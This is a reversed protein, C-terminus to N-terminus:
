DEDLFGGKNDDAVTLNAFMEIHKSDRLILEISNYVTGSPNQGMHWPSLACGRIADKVTAIDFMNVAITIVKGREENYRPKRKGQYHTDLYFHWIQILTVPSIPTLYNARKKDKRSRPAEKEEGTDFLRLQDSSM